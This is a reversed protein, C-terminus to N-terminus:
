KRKAPNHRPEWRHLPIQLHIETGAEPVSTMACSGGLLATRERIDLLGMGTSKGSRSLDYGRGNDCIRGVLSGHKRTLAVQVQSAKSHREINSLAEQVIRYVNLEVEAALPRAFLRLSLATTIGTRERFERCLSRLAAALGLDDLESPRLNRSIRRVESIAKELVQRAKTVDDSAEVKTSASLREEISQFRFNVSSLLQNVSDHLERAVRRREAEQAQLILQPLNHLQEEAAKRLTIDRWVLLLQDPTGTESPIWNGVSEVFRYEGSSHRVRFEDAESEHKTRARNWARRVRDRDEPHILVLSDTGTLAETAHGLGAQFSPSAYLFRRNADLLSIFDRTHEAILRYQVQTLRLAAEIEAERREAQKKRLVNRISSPLRKLSAKFIYDDAGEKICEVAVEECRTGTVLIFPIDPKVGQLAHLAELANFEPLTFDSLVVDPTSDRLATLFEERTELRRATFALKENRLEAEIAEADRPVDELILIDLTKGPAALSAPHM